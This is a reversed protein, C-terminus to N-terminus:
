QQRRMTCCSWLGLDILSSIGAGTIVNNDVQVRGTASRANTEFEDVYWGHTVASLDAM